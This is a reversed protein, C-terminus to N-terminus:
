KKEYELIAKLVKSDPRLAEMVLINVHYAMISGDGGQTEQGRKVLRLNGTEEINKTQDKTGAQKSQDYNYYVNALIVPEAKVDAVQGYYITGDVLKVAYWNKGQDDIATKNKHGFLYYAMALVVLGALIFVAARYVGAKHGIQPRDIKKMEAFEEIKEERYLKEVPATKKQSAPRKDRGRLDVTQQFNDPM